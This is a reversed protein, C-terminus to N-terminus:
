NGMFKRHEVYEEYDEKTEADRQLTFSYKYTGNESKQIMYFVGDIVESKVGDVGDQMKELNEPAINALFEPTGTPVVDVGMLAITCVSTFAQESKASASVVTVKRNEDGVVMIITDNSKDVWSKLPTDSNEGVDISSFDCIGASSLTNLVYGVDEITNEFPLPKSISAVVKEFDDTYDQNGGKETCMLFSIIGTSCDFAIMTSLYDQNNTRIKMEFRYANEKNVLTEEASILKYKEFGKGFMDIFDSRVNEDDLSQNMESYAVMMMGKEPYFYQIEDTSNEGKKWSEPVEFSYGKVSISQNTESNFDNTIVKGGCGALLGFCMCMVLIASLIKKM